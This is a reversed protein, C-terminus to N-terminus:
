LPLIKYVNKGDIYINPQDDFSCPCESEGLIHILEGKKLGTSYYSYQKPEIGEQNNLIKTM